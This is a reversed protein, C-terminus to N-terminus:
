IKWGAFKFDIEGKTETAVTKITQRRVREEAIFWKAIQKFRPWWFARVTPKDIAEKFYKEGIEILITEADDPMHDHYDTMFEELIDHIMIGKDIAGPDQDLDDIKKLRLIKNAYLSYPDQMWLQIRTVSLDRPRASVPPTPKPPDIEIRKQPYDLKQHWELWKESEVTHHDDGIIAHLRGLWRSKVTPTGDNKESRTIVVNKASATQVFDHASLGIKQELGPLGFDKRMPRSMWPDASPEPPWIGENLGSLIMLDAHQLRAELPGWINLRPHQGYKKRVTVSSM